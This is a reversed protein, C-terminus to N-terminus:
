PRYSAGDKRSSCLCQKYNPHTHVRRQWQFYVQPWGSYSHSPRWLYLSYFMCYKVYGLYLLLIFADSKLFTGPIPLIYGEENSVPRASYYKDCINYDGKCCLIYPLLDDVVHRYYSKLPSEVDASGGAYKKKLSNDAGYCCQQGPGNGLPRYALVLTFYEYM